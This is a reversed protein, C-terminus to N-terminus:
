SRKVLGAISLDEDIAPWHIGYGGPSLEAATRQAPTARALKQSCRDWPVRVEREALFIVLGEDTAEIRLATIPETTRMM